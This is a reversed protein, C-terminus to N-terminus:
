NKANKSAKIQASICLVIRSNLSFHILYFSYEESDRLLCAREVTKLKRNSFAGVSGLKRIPTMSGNSYQKCFYGVFSFPM